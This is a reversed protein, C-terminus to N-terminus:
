EGKAAKARFHEEHYKVFAPYPVLDLEDYVAFSEKATKFGEIQDRLDTMNSGTMKSVIYCGETEFGFDKANKSSPYAYEITKHTFKM